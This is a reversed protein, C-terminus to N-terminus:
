LCPGGAKQARVWDKILRLVFQNLSREERAALDKLEQKLEPEPYLCIIEKRTM